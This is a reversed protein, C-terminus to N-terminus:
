LAPWVIPIVQPSVSGPEVAPRSECSRNELNEELDVLAYFSVFFPIGKSGASSPEVVASRSTRQGYIYYM